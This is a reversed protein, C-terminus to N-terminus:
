WLAVTRAMKPEATETTSEATTDGASVTTKTDASETAEIKKESKETCTFRQWFYKTVRWNVWM